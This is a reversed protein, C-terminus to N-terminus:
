SMRITGTVDNAPNLDHLGGLTKVAEIYMDPIVTIPKLVKSEFYGAITRNWGGCHDRLLCDHCDNAVSEGLHLSNQWLRNLNDIQLDYNWEWPDYNVYRANVVYPWYKPSLHCFPHYRITFLTNSNLLLDAAEEIYPLLEAPHVLVENLHDKWEYHPLFGLMVFHYVGKSIEYCAANPLERYNAKQLTINTRFPYNNERLWDKLKAQLDFAGKQQVIDDLTNGIGHSSIHLHDIGEQFFEQYKRLAVAGNTIMSSAMNLSKCYRIIELTNQCLAPEGYGVMVAHNCGGQRARDIKGKVIDIPVDYATGLLPSRKYFCHNCKQQCRWTVDIGVRTCPKMGIGREEQLIPM